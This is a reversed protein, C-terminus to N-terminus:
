KMILPTYIKKELIILSTLPKIQKERQEEITKIQKEFAKGLPYYAFKAQAMMTNKEPPVIDKGQLYKQMKEILIMHYKWLRLVKM